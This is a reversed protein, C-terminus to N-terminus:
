VIECAYYLSITTHREYLTSIAVIYITYLKNSAKGRYSIRGIIMHTGKELLSGFKPGHATTFSM